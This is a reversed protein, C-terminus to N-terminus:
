NDKENRTSYFNLAKVILSAMAGSTTSAISLYDKEAESLSPFNQSIGDIEYDRDIYVWYGNNGKSLFSYKRM